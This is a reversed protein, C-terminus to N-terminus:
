YRCKQRIQKLTYFYLSKELFFWNNGFFTKKIWNKVKREEKVSNEELPKM